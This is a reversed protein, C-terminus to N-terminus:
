VYIQYNYNIMFTLYFENYLYIYMVKNINETVYQIEILLNQNIWDSM